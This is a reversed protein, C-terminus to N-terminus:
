VTYFMKQKVRFGFHRRQYQGFFSNFKEMATKLHNLTKPLEYITVVLCVSVVDFHANAYGFGARGLIQLCRQLPLEVFMEQGMFNFSCDFDFWNQTRRAFIHIWVIGSVVYSPLKSLFFIVLLICIFLFM